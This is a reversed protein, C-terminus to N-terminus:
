YRSGGGAEKDDRADRSDKTEQPKSTKQQHATDKLGSTDRFPKTNQDQATPEKDDRADRTEKNGQQQSSGQKTRQQDAQAPVFSLGWAFLVASVALASIITRMDAGGKDFLRPLFANGYMGM